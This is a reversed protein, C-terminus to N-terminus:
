QAIPYSKNEFSCYMQIINDCYVYIHINQSLQSPYFYSLAPKRHRVVIKELTQLRHMKHGYEVCNCVGDIHM